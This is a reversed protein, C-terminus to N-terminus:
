NKLEAQVFESLQDLVNSTNQTVAVNIVEQSAPCYEFLRGDLFNQEREILCIVSFQM